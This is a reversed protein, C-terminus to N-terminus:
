EMKHFYNAINTKKEKPTNIGLEVVDYVANATLTIGNIDTTIVAAFGSLTLPETKVDKKISCGTCLLLCLCLCLIKKM